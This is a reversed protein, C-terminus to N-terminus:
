VGQSHVKEPLIKVIVRQEDPRRYPYRDQGLYKKAMKDIHNDAGDHTMEVVRGRVTADAYANIRHTISAAVGAGRQLNRTKQRGEATKFIIHTGDTDIWVPTVEPSGDPMITAVHGFNPETFLKQVGPALQATTAM